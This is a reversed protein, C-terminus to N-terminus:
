ARGFTARAFDQITTPQVGFRRATETMDIPSDFTDTFAMLGSVTAPLNPILEGPEIKKVLLQQGLVNEVAKVIDLWSVAEPGGVVISQNMADPNGVMAVLYAAVDKVSIFSHKRNGHGVLTVPAGM